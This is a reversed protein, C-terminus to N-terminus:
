ARHPSRPVRSTVITPRTTVRTTPPVRTTTTALTTQAAQPITVFEGSIPKSGSASDSSSGVLASTYESTNGTNSAALATYVGTSSLLIGGSLVLAILRKMLKKDM